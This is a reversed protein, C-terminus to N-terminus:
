VIRSFRNRQMVQHLHHDFVMAIARVLFWGTSTVQVAAAELDVLGSEALAQMAGLERAFYERM